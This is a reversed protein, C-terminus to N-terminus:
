GFRSTVIPQAIIWLSVMTYGIMLALMPYQSKLAIRKEKFVRLAMAHALYVAAVHGTVIAIVSTYWIFRADVIGIRVFYRTTGFLEWGFGFPDSLLPILYQGAMVLFSLYHALHYAIAIPVLTLVFWCAVTLTAEHKVPPRRAASGAAATHAILWACALYISMFLAWVAALGITAILTRAMEDSASLIAIPLWQAFSDAINAWLPTEALGDFTVTALMLVVLAMLSPHVPDDSLLGVAPPRLNWEPNANVVRFETPAFRALVGFILAFTECHDLWTKRGFLFMGAWTIACYALVAVALDFPVDSREWALEAWAFAFFFVVAPWMALRQPYDLGLSLKAGRALRSYASQAWACATKLPSLLRWLDGLLASIYAVGVWWIAWVMIPAVNKTPSQTGILGAVIVLVFLAMALVRCCRLIVPHAIVRGIRSRLLDIRPYFEPQAQRHIFVAMVVFSVGVAAAAGTLYLWLPVPLDYRQGFGHAHASATYTSASALLTACARLILRSRFRRPSVRISSSKSAKAM